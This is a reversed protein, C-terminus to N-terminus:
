QLSVVYNMVATDIVYDLIELYEKIRFLVFGDIIMYKNEVFYDYILDKLIENKYKFNCEQIEIIKRCIRFIMDKEFDEFYFYNDEIINLLIKEEYFIEICFAVVKSIEFLFRNEKEGLYHIIINKYNKFENISIVIENIDIAKIEKNLYELIAENNTKVCITKM